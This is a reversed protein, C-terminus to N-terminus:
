AGPRTVRIIRLQREHGERDPWSISQGDRLGILGAGIPTLISIRGLAIDADNPYVLQVTRSAGTSEDVFEVQSEMTVVDAPIKDATHIKAREIEDLLMECVQPLRAEVSLALNALKESERDIMHIPPRKGAKKQTM